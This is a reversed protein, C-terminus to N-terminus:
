LYKPRFMAVVSAILCLVFIFLSVWGMRRAAREVRYQMVLNEVAKRDPSKTVRQDGLHFRNWEAFKPRIM